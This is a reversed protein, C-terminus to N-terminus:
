TSLPGAKVQDVSLARGRVDVFLPTGPPDLDHRPFRARRTVPYAEMVGVIGTAEDAFYTVSIGPLVEDVHM